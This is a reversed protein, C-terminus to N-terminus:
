LPDSSWGGLWRERWGIRLACQPLGKGERGLRIHLEAKESLDSLVTSAEALSFDLVFSVALKARGRIRGSPLMRIRKYSPICRQVEISTRMFACVEATPDYALTTGATEWALWLAYSDQPDVSTSLLLAGTRLFQYDLAKTLQSEREVGSHRIPLSCTKAVESIGDALTEAKADFQVERAVPSAALILNIFATEQLAAISAGILGINRAALEAVVALTSGIRAPGVASVLQVVEVKEALSGPGRMARLRGFDPIFAETYAAYRGRNATCVTWWEGRVKGFRRDSVQLGMGSDSAFKFLNDLFAMRATSARDELGIAARIALRQSFRPRDGSGDLRFQERAESQPSVPAQLFLIPSEALDSAARAIREVAATTALGDAYTPISKRGDLTLLVETSRREDYIFSANHVQDATYLVGVTNGRVEGPTSVAESYEEKFTDSQPEEAPGKLRTWAEMGIGRAEFFLLEQFNLQKRQAFALDLPDEESIDGTHRVFTELRPSQLSAMSAAMGALAAPRGGGDLTEM